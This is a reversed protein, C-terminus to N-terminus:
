HTKAYIADRLTRCLDRNKTKKAVNRLIHFTDWLHVGSYDGNDKLRRLAAEISAQEDTIITSPQGGMMGFFSFFM